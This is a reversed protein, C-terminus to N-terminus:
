NVTASQQARVSQGLARARLIKLQAEMRPTEGKRAEQWAEESEIVEKLRPWQAAVADYDLIHKTKYKAMLAKYVSPSVAKLEALVPRIDFGQKQAWGTEQTVVLANHAEMMQLQTLVDIAMRKTTADLPVPKGDKTRKGEVFVADGAIERRLNAMQRGAEEARSIPHLMRLQVAGRGELHGAMITFGREKDTLRNLLEDASALDGNQLYERYSKGNSDLVSYPQSLREAIGRMAGQPGMMDRIAKGSETGKGAKWLFRRAIFWEDPGVEPKNPNHWPLGPFNMSLFDRAWNTGLGKMFHEIYYPSIDLAEGMQKAFSSTYEDYQLDRNLEAKWRPVIEQGTFLNRNLSLEVPFLLAQPILPPTITNMLDKGYKELWRPNGQRADYMIREVLNAFWATEFGKPLRLMQNGFQKELHEKLGPIEKPILHLVSDMPIVWHTARIEDPVERVREDDDFLSSILMSMGGFVFISYSWVWASQALDARENATLAAGGGLRYKFYSSWASGYDGYAAMLRVYRDSGQVAANFFAVIKNVSKAYAGRRSYDIYDQAYIAAEAAAQADTLGQAKARRFGSEFLASRTGTETAESVESITRINGYQRLFAGPSRWISPKYGARILQDVARDFRFDQLANTQIGGMLGVNHAYDKAQQKDTVVRYFGKVQTLWPWLNRDYMHALFGDVFLNRLMYAPNTTISLRVLSTPVAAANILWDFHYQGFNALTQFMLNGLEGDGLRMPVPVGDEYVWTIPDTGENIKQGTFVQATVDNGLLTRSFTILSQKDNPSLGADKAASRLADELRVTMPVAETAPLREAIKGGEPGATEALRLLALKADNVAILQRVEYVNQAISAIPDIINRNSGLLQKIVGYKGAKLNRSLDANLKEDFTRMFPVYYKSDRLLDAHETATIIGKDRLLQLINDQFEYLMKAGTVFSPFQQELDAITQAHVHREVLTPPVMGRRKREEPSMANYRDWLFVARKAVLYSGFKRYRSNPKTDLAEARDSGLAERLAGVLSPGRARLQDAPRVGDTIDMTAVSHANTAIRLLKLPNDIALLNLKQGTRQQYIELLQRTAMYFPHLENVVNRYLSSLVGVTQVGDAGVARKRLKEFTGDRDAPSIMSQVMENPALNGYAEIAKQADILQQFLRKDRADIFAEFQVYFNPYNSLALNPHLLYQQMFQSFGSALEDATPSGQRTLETGWTILRQQLAQGFRSQLVPALNLSLQNLDYYIQQHIVGTNPNFGFRTGVGPGQRLTLGLGTVLNRIVQNVGVIAPPPQNGGFLAFLQEGSTASQVKGPQWVMYTWGPGEVENYFRIADYGAETLKQRMLDTARRMAEQSPRLRGTSASQEQGSGLTEAVQDPLSALRPVADAIAQATEMPGWMGLDPLTLPNRVDLISPLVRGGEGGAFPDSATRPGWMFGIYRTQNLDFRQFAKATTGHYAM